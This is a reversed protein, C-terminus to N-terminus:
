GRRFLQESQGLQSAHRDHLGTENVVETALDLAHGEVVGGPQGKGVDL